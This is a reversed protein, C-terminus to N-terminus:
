SRRRFTNNRGDYHNTKLCPKKMVAVYVSDEGLLHELDHILSETPTVNFSNGAKMIVEGGTPFQLCFTVATAGPHAKLLSMTKELQKDKLNVVSMHISIRETFAQSAQELSYLESAILKVTDENTFSDKTVKGSAMIVENENLVQGYQKFTQPFVVIELTGDTDEIQLVAMPEKSKKTFIKKVKAVLGGVRTMTGEKMDALGSVTSLSYRRLQPEYQLLPHGSMYIGILEKESSLLENEHWQPCDPLTEPRDPELTDSFMSFLTTQGMKQDRHISEGRSVAMDISNFLQARHFGFSDFAGCRILTELSKRTVNRSDMRSCFDILGKFPGNQEREKVCAEAANGGVNKIGALGFRIAKDQPMFRVSSTNIDPPLIELGMDKVEKILVPLKDTNGIESSLLAAMFEEPYNAKLWATQYAIIAYGTSHSKNFGYGAFKSINDFIKEAKKTSIGSTKKCGNIFSQRQNEMEDPKKKGMARRLIDGQGLSYGALVHAAQQVQEQYLMVGYTDLLVPELKPHDFVIKVKGSKRNVYDDLMHMPGPRFLSVVAILDEINDLGIRRVLDRMGRSELQFVGVTNGLRLLDFTVQDDMAINDIDLSIHRTKQVQKVAEDIVTLTKLGLFDAKLLGLADVYDKSYQTVIEGSKDVSLPLMNVLPKEGFVVGAAHVGSHRLLGELVVAQRMIKMANPDSESMKKLESNGAMAMELTIKPDDPVMKALRNCESLPLELVRGVDHIITKAGLSAFTIIQAVNDRGYKKKVYEIVEGRRFQCFDIDFDPPSVREPNLFREFVLKYHLPDVGTIGLVYSVLSGAGSGRGPGVPIHHDRAFQVCDLIILFYGVFRTQKIVSIEHNLRAIVKKELDNRPKDPNEVGYRKKIGEMCLKLLYSEQSFGPPVPFVPVHMESFTLEVNCRRSIELTNEIAEPLDKFLACMEEGTKLYFDSSGYQMHNPDSLVTGTQLCLLIEHAEAHSKELYHVDNTAVLKLGTRRAIEVMGSIVKKQGPLNHDQIELFFNDKGFIDAYEEASRVAEETKGALIKESISGKLCGSLGILGQHYQSLIEKDIRPKYYFGELHASTVLRILNYYGTENEALLVLHNATTRGRDSKRDFRSEPAEYVECGLIPKVGESKAAQYFEVIGYMVGHDTIAVAPM